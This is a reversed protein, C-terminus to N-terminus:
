RPCDKQLGNSRPKIKKRLADAEAHSFGAILRSLETGPLILVTTDESAKASTVALGDRLLGREGFSNRPGLLSVLGGNRDTIEVGGTEILFLGALPEGFAYVPTGAPIDRRSFSTAVRALEDRPLSDYPHVSALFAAVSATSDNM